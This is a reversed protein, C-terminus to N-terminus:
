SRDTAPTTPEFGVADHIDKYIQGSTEYESSRADNYLTM